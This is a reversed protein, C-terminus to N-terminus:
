SDTLVSKPASNVFDNWSNYADRHSKSAEDWVPGTVEKMSVLKMMRTTAADLEILLEHSKYRFEEISSM